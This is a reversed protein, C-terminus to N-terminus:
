KRVHRSPSLTPIEAMERGSLASALDLGVKEAWEKGQLKLSPKRTAKKM